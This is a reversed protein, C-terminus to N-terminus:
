AAGRRRRALVGRSSRHTQEHYDLVRHKVADLVCDRLTAFAQESRIVAGTDPEVCSWTWANNDPGVDFDWKLM